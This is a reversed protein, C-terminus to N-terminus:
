LMLTARKTVLFGIPYYLGHLVPLIRACEIPISSVPAVRAGQRLAASCEGFLIPHYNSLTTSHWARVRNPSKNSQVEITLSSRTSDATFHYIKMIILNDKPCTNHEPSRLANYAFRCQDVEKEIGRTPFGGGM